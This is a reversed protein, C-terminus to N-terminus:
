LAATDANVSDILDRVEAAREASREAQLRGVERRNSRVDLEFQISKAAKRLAEDDENLMWTRGLVPHDDKPATTTTSM